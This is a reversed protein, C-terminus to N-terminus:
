SKGGGVGARLVARFINVEHTRKDMVTLVRITNVSQNGFIMQPHQEVVEEILLNKPKIKNFLLQVSQPDDLKGESSECCPSKIITVGQGELGALPKIVLSEHRHCFSSFETFSMDKAKLWERHVFPAFYSNFKDKDRLFSIYAPDNLSQLQRFHRFTVIRKREFSRYRYFNGVTFQTITCGYRLYAWVSDIWLHAMSIKERQSVDRLLKQCESIYAKVFKFKYM